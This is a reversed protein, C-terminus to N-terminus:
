AGGRDRIRLGINNMGMFQLLDILPSIYAYATSRDADIRVPRNPAEVVAERLRRHLLRKTMPQSDVYITGDRTVEIILTEYASKTEKASAAEPLDIGLDKHQKTVHSTCLFYVLLLFVCDILPAMQVGLEEGADQKKVRM